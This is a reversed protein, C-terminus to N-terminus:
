SPWVVREIARRPRQARRLTDAARGFVGKLGRLADQGVRRVREHRRVVGAGDHHFCPDARRADAVVRLRCEDRRLGDASRRLIREDRRLRDATRRRTYEDRRLGDPDLHSAARASARPVDIGPSTALM